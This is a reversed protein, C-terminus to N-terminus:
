SVPTCEDTGTLTRANNTSRAATVERADFERPIGRTVPATEQLHSSMAPEGAWRHVATDDCSGEELLGQTKTEFFVQSVYPLIARRATNLGVRVIIKAKDFSGFGPRKSPLRALRLVIEDKSVVCLGCCCARTM